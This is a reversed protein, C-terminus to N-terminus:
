CINQYPVHADETMTNSTADHGDIEPDGISSMNEVSDAESERLETVSDYTNLPNLTNVGEPGDPTEEELPELEVVPLDASRRNCLEVGVPVAVTVAVPVTPVPVYYGATMSAEFMDATSIAARPPQSPVPPPLPRETSSSSSTSNNRPVPAPAPAAHIKTSASSTVKPASTTGTTNKTSKQQKQEKNKQTNEDIRREAQAVIQNRTNEEFAPHTPDMLSPDVITGLVAANANKSCLQITMTTLFDRHLGNPDVSSPSTYEDKMKNGKSVVVDCPFDSGNVDRLTLKATCRHGSQVAQKLDAVEEHLNAPSFLDDLLMPLDDRSYGLVAHFNDPAKLLETVPGGIEPHQCVGLIVVVSQFPALRDM